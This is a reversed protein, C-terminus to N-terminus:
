LYNVTFTHMYFCNMSHLNCDVIKHKIPAEVTSSHQPVVFSVALTVTLLKRAHVQYQVFQKYKCQFSSTFGSALLWRTFIIVKMMPAHLKYAYRICHETMCRKKASQHQFTKRHASILACVCLTSHQLWRSRSRTGVM